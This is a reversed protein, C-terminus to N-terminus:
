SSGRSLRNLANDQLPQRWDYKRPLSAATRVCAEDGWARVFIRDNHSEISGPIRYLIWQVLVVTTGRM